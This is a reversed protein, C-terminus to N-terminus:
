TCLILYCSVLTHIDILGLFSTLLSLTTTCYYHELSM